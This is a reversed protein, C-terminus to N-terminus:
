RAMIWLTVAVAASAGALGAWGLGMAAVAAAGILAANCGLALVAVQAHSMGRAVARQYFHDRHARWVREGRAARSVLTITADALFYLPLILAAQWRGAEALRLLLYGLLFGLPVSGVDGLFIRAPHWNWILFGLSAAAAAGGMAGLAPDAGALLAVAAVGLGLSLAEGGALGDIGDMFNFLNVFWLWALAVAALGLWAPLWAGFLGGAAPMSWLAALVAMAHGALRVHVPLGARDDRWSLLALGLAAALMVWSERLAGAAALIAVWAALIAGVVAIGGGRPTPVAHSSRPNPRDLVGTRELAHILGFTGLWSALGAALVAGLAAALTV